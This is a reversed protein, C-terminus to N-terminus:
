QELRRRILTRFFLSLPRFRVRALPGRRQAWDQAVSSWRELLATVEFLAVAEHPAAGGDFYGDLFAARYRRVRAPYAWAGLGAAALVTYDLDALFFGIDRHIPARHRALTDLVAIREGDVVFANRMAFDGHLLGAPLIEPLLTVARAALERELWALFAHDGTLDALFTILEAQFTVLDSRCPQLLPPTPIPELRHFRQLWAGAYEFATDLSDLGRGAPRRGAALVVRRLTPQDMAEMVVARHRPLLEHVRVADFRDDGSAFHREILSLARHELRYKWAPNAPSAIRPRDMDSPAAGRQAVAAPASLKVIVDRRATGIVVEFRFVTSYSRARRDVIRLQAPEGSDHAVYRYAHAALHNAVAREAADQVGGALTVV